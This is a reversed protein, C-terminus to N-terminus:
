EARREEICGECNCHGGLRLESKICRGLWARVEANVRAEIDAPVTWGISQFGRTPVPRALRRLNRTRYIWRGPSYNGFAFEQVSITVKGERVEEVVFSESPQVDYIEVVAVICGFQPEFKQGRKAFARGTLYKVASPWCIDTKAAHICIDGRYSTRISRTENVKTGIAMLSAYPEYLTIAKM